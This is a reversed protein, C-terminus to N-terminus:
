QQAGTEDELIMGSEVDARKIRGNIQEGMAGDPLVRNIFDQKKESKNAYDKGGIKGDSDSSLNNPPNRFYEDNMDHDTVEPKGVVQEAKSFVKDEDSKNQKDVFKKSATAQTHSM